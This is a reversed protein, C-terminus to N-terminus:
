KRWSIMEGNLDTLGFMAERAVRRSGAGYHREEDEDSSSCSSFKEENQDEDEADDHEAEQAAAVSGPSQAGPAGQDSLDIEASHNSGTM